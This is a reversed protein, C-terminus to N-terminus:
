RGLAYRVHIRRNLAPHKRSIKASAVTLKLKAKSLYGLSTNFIYIKLPVSELDYQADNLPTDGFADRAPQNVEDSNSSDFGVDRERSHKETMGLLRLLYPDESLALGINVPRPRGAVFEPEDWKLRGIKTRKESRLRSRATCPRGPFRAKAVGQASLGAVNAPSSPSVEGGSAAM